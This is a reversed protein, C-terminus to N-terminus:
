RDFVERRIHSYDFGKNLLFRCLKNLEDRDATAVDIHKKDIWHRILEDEDFEIDNKDIVDSILESSIGKRMLAQEIQRRSKINRNREIFNYVYNEDNVYNFSKVYEIATDIVDDPYEGDHLKDRLQRETRDSAQLLYLLRLKASKLLIEEYIRSRMSEDFEKGVELEYQRVEKRYLCFAPMDNLYIRCKKKNIEEIQTIYM